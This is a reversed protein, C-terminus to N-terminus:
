LAAIAACVPRLVPYLSRYIAYGRAYYEAEVARPACSEVERIAARCVEIVSGYKGALALLAAGYAYATTFRQIVWL